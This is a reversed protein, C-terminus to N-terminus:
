LPFWRHVSPPAPIPGRPRAADDDIVLARGAGVAPVVPMAAGQIATLRIAPTRGSCARAISQSCSTSRSPLGGDTATGRPGIPPSARLRRTPRPERASNANISGVGVRGSSSRHAQLNLTGQEPTRSQRDVLMKVSARQRSVPLWGLCLATRQRISGRQVPVDSCVHLLCRIRM